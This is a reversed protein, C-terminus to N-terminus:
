ASAFNTAHGENEQISVTLPLTARLRTGADTSILELRGGFQRLRHNMSRLGVGATGVWDRASEALIGLPVGKGQDAVELIVAEPTRLLVVHATDSGSHRHVNTLSEQLIRFLILEVDRPLREFDEPIEFTASIRSRKSFGDVYWPIASKLGLEELMPPYLLYSITRVEKVCEEALAACEEIEQKTISDGGLRDYSISDLKMKIVALYQGLSDHMEQGIRKREEDQLRLLQLSLERLSRESAQLKQRSEELAKQALMQETFDRTIKTFGVLTGSDDRLATLIGNSWFRSGDKRIRWGEAECHGEKAALELARHPKGSQIDEGAYFCSFHKGLIEEAKYGKIREAGANWTIVRGQPDLGFIAYDQVAEVILRFREENEHLNQEARRRGAMDSRLAVGSVGVLVFAVLSGIIILLNIAHDSRRAAERRQSLLDLEVSQMEAAAARVEGVSRRISSELDALGSISLQGSQRLDVEQQMVRLSNGMLAELSALRHQQDASDQTLARLNQLHEGINRTGQGCVTLTASDGSIVFSQACADADNLGKQTAELERLVEQTHAVWRNDEVVRRAARYQMGGLALISVLAIGVALGVKTELSLNM